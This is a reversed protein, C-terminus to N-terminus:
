KNQLYSEACRKMLERYGASITAAVEDARGQAFAFPRKELTDEQRQLLDRHERILDRNEPNSAINKTEGPDAVLDYLQEKGIRHTTHNPVSLDDEGNPVYEMIYKHRETRIMKNFVSNEAYVYERVPENSAGEVLSRLSRGQVGAPAPVGAFDCVTPFLDVGSVMHTSDVVAKGVYDADGFSSFILPVKVVEDWLTNKGVTGHRAMSEGHDSSFIVVTNDRYISSEIEDLLLGIEADVMEVLRYYKWLYYRWQLESWEPTEGSRKIHRVIALDDNDYAHQAPLPPLSEEPVVGSSILRPVEGNREQSYVLCTDHPNLYGVNLFFPESGSYARLIARASRSVDSDTIEGWHSGEHTVSFVKRVAVGSVHWKGTFLTAYGHSRLHDSLLPVNSHMPVVNNVVVGHESSYRGTWWSARAPCCIPDACFSETFCAGRSILRDINPTNVYECGLGSITDNLSMQDVNIFVINPRNM